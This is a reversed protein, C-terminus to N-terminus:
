VSYFSINSCVCANFNLVLGMIIAKLLTLGPNIFSLGKLAANLSSIPALPCVTMGWIRYICTQAFSSILVVSILLMASLLIMIVGHSLPHIIM